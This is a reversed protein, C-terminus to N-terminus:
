VRCIRTWDPLHTRCKRRRCCHSTQALEEEEQRGAAKDALRERYVNPPPTKCYCLPQRYQRNAPEHRGTCSSMENMPIMENRYCSAGNFPQTYVVSPGKSIGYQMNRVPHSGSGCDGGAQKVAQKMSEFSVGATNTEERDCALGIKKCTQKCNTGPSGLKWGPQAAGLVKTTPVYIRTSQALEEDVVEDFAVPHCVSVAIIAASLIIYRCGRLLTLSRHSAIAVAHTPM